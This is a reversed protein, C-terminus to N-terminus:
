NLKDPYIYFHSNSKQARLKTMTGKQCEELHSGDYPFLWKKEFFAIVLFDVQLLWMLPIQSKYQM